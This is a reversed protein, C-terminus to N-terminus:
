EAEFRAEISTPSQSLGYVSIDERINSETETHAHIDEESHCRSQRTPHDPFHEEAEIREAIGHLGKPIRVETDKARKPSVEDIDELSDLLEQSNRLNETSQRRALFQLSVTSDVSDEDQRVCLDNCLPIRFQAEHCDHNDAHDDANHETRNTAQLTKAPEAVSRDPHVNDAKEDDHHSGCVVADIVTNNGVASQDLSNSRDLGKRSWRRIGVM